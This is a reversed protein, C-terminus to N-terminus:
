ESVELWQYTKDENRILRYAGRSGPELEIDLVAEADGRGATM